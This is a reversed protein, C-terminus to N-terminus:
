VEDWAFSGTSRLSVSYTAMENKPGDLSVSEVLATGTIYRDGTTAFQGWKFTVETGAILDNFAAEGSQTTEDINHLGDVSITLSREGRTFEKYAGSDKTTKEIMDAAVEISTGTTGVYANSDTELLILDGNILAM